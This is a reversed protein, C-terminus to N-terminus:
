DTVPEEELEYISVEMLGKVTQTMVPVRKYGGGEFEDIRPWYEPLDKSILVHVPVEQGYDDLKIGPYGHAAGWGSDYRHGRVTGTIWEGEINSVIHHYTKGPALTGYTALRHDATLNNTM